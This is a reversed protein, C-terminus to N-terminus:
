IKNTAGICHFNIKVKDTSSNTAKFAVKHGLAYQCREYIDAAKKYQGIQDLIAKNRDILFESFM